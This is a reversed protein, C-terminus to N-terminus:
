EEVDSEDGVKEKSLDIGARIDFFIEKGEINVILFIHEGLLNTLGIVTFHKTKQTPKIQTICYKECLFKVGGIHIDGTMDLNGGVEDGFLVMDPRSFKSTVKCGHAESEFKVCNGYKDKWEQEELMTVFKSKTLTKQISDYM